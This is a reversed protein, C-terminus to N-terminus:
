LPMATVHGADRVRLSLRNALTDAVSFQRDNRRMGNDATVILVTGDYSGTDRLHTVSSCRPACRLAGFGWHLRPSDPGTKHALSDAAHFALLSFRPPGGRASIFKIYEELM